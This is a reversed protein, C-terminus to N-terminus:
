LFLDPCAKTASNVLKVQAAECHLLLSMRWRIRQAQLAALSYTLFGCIELSFLSEPLPFTDHFPFNIV